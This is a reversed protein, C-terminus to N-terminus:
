AKHRSIRNSLSIVPLRWFAELAIKPSMKSKGMEREVFVIPVEVIRAGMCSAIYTMEVQFVYGSASIPNELVKELLSRKWLKFGGTLDRIPLGLCLRSYLSGFKSIFRRTFNWNETGGGQVYRSGIVLDAQGASRIMDALYKPPHSLDADMQIIYRVDPRELVANFGDLYALGLGEKRPRHLVSIGTNEGAIGEAIEGTGDPSNDDIVLISVGPLVRLVSEIAVSLSKAENYTPLCVVIKDNISEM